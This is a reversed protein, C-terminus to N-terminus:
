SNIILLYDVTNIVPGATRFKRYIFFFSIEFGDVNTKLIKIYHTKLKPLCCVLCITCALYM